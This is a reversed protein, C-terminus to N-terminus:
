ADQGNLEEEHAGEAMTVYAALRVDTRKMQWFEERKAACVRTFDCYKCNKSAGNQFGGPVPPFLGDDSLSKLTKLNSRFEGEIGELEFEIVANKPQEIFQYECRVTPASELGVTQWERRVVEGYLPLQFLQGHLLPSKHQGAYRSLGGTKYDIITAIGKAPDFDIRDIYGSLSLKTGEIEFELRDERGFEKEFFRPEGQRTNSDRDLFVRLSEKLKAKEFRWLPSAQVYGELELKQLEKDLTAQFRLHDEPGWVRGQAIPLSDEFFKCLAHHVASGRTLADLSWIDRVEEDEKLKIVHKLLFQFPCKGFSELGTASFKPEEGLTVAGDWPTVRDGKRSLFMEKATELRAVANADAAATHGGALALLQFEQPSAPPANRLAAEFSDYRVLEDKDLEDYGLFDAGVLKAAEELYWHSPITERMSRLDARPFSFAIQACSGRVKEYVQRQEKILTEVTKLGLAKAEAAWLLTQSSARPLNASTMGLIMAAEFKLGFAEQLTGVFVGHGFPARAGLPEELLFEIADKFDAPGPAPVLKGLEQLAAISGELLEFEITSRVSRPLWLKFLRRTWGRFEEWSRLRRFENAFREVDELFGLMQRADEARKQASKASDPNDQPEDAQAITQRMRLRWNSLGKTVRARKSLRDWRHVPIPDNGHFLTASSLWEIADARRFGNETFKFFGSLLRGAPSERQKNDQRSNCPIGARTLTEAALRAYLDSSPFLVAIKHLPIGAECFGPIRRAAMRCEQEADPLIWCEADFPAKVTAQYERMAGPSNRGEAEATTVTGGRMSPSTGDAWRTSVDYGLDVLPLGPNADGDGEAGGYIGTLVGWFSLAARSIGPLPECFLIAGLEALAPSGEEVAQTAADYIDRTDSYPAILRLFEAQVVALPGTLKESSEADRIDTLLKAIKRVSPAHGALKALKPEGRLALEAAKLKVIEALPTEGEAALLPTGILEAVEELTRFSVNLLGPGEEVGEGVSRRLQLGALRTPVIVTVPALAVGGKASDILDQM